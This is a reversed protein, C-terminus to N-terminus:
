LPCWRAFVILRATALVEHWRNDNLPAQHRDRIVRVGSGVDFVYRLRGDVLEIAILDTSTGSVGDDDDDRQGSYLILGTPQTTRLQAAVDCRWRSTVRVALVRSDAGFTLYGRIYCNEVPRVLV